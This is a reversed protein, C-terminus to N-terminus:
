FVCLFFLFFSATLMGTPQFAQAAKAVAELREQDNAPAPQGESKVLWETGYEDADNGDDDEDMPEEEEDDGAPTKPTRPSRTRVAAPAGASEEDVELDGAPPYNKLLEELPAEGEKLLAAVEDEGKLMDKDNSLLKEAEAMTGEDDDSAAEEPHLATPDFEADEGEPEPATASEALSASSGAVSAGDDVDMSDVNTPIPIRNSSSRWVFNSELWLCSGARTQGVTSSSVQLDKALMESYKETQGVLFDLHRDMASKKKEDLVSQHKFVILEEVQGWFTKVQRAIWRARERLALEQDRKERIKDRDRNRHFKKVDNAIKKAMMIKWKREERYDAVANGIEKLVYDWHTTTRPPEAAKPVRRASLMGKQQLVSMRYHVEADFKAKQKVATSDLPNPAVMFDLRNAFFETETWPWLQVKKKLVSFGSGRLNVARSASFDNDNEDDSDSEGAGKPKRGGRSPTPPSLPTGLRPRGVKRKVPEPTITYMPPPPPGMTAEPEEKIAKALAKQSNISSMAKASPAVVPSSLVPPSVDVKSPDVKQLKQPVLEQVPRDRFAAAVSSVAIDNPNYDLLSGMGELHVLLKLDAERTLFAQEIQARSDDGAKLRVDRIVM